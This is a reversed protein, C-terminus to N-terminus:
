PTASICSSSKLEGPPLLRARRWWKARCVITLTETPPFNKKLKETFSKVEFFDVQFESFLIHSVVQLKNLSIKRCPQILLSSKSKAWKFCLLESYEECQWKTSIKFVQLCKLSPAYWNNDLFICSITFLFTLWSIYGLMWRLASNFDEKKLTLMLSCLFLLQPTREACLEGMREGERGETHM